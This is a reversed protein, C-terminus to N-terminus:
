KKYDNISDVYHRALVKNREADPLTKVQRAPVGAWLTHPPIVTGSLVVAGAAIVSGEGVRANDLVTAHIGILCDDEVVAGHVVAAHGITVRNGIVTESLGLSCHLVAGDQVNSEEGIVIKGVDGRVAAGFWVSSRNGLVVDGVVTANDAVFATPAVQPM